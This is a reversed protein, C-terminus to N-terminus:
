AHSDGPPPAHGREAAVLGKVIDVFYDLDFPKSIMLAVGAERSARAALSSDPFATILIRAADPQMEAARTLFDIGSMRPMKYDSLVLRVARRGLIKLGEEGSRATEIDIGPASTEILERMSDLIDPEDDVMLIAPSDSPM